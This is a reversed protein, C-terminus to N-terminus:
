GGAGAAGRGRAWVGIDLRKGGNLNFGRVRAIEQPRAAGEQALRDLFVKEEPATLFAVRCDGQRIWDAAARGDAMVLDTRTLFVLSPERYGATLAKMDRCGTREAAEHMAAALRPSIRLGQMQPLMAGLTSAMFAVATVLALLATRWALGAAYARWALVSLAAAVALGAVALWPTAGDLAHGAAPLLALGAVPILPLLLMAPRAGWRAAPALEGRVLARAALLAIAPYLPLVYHPLKTPVAEFVLWAPIVWAMVFAVVDDRRERWLTQAAIAAFPALPWATGFFALFYAGPPGWHKEQGSSVKGLMDKGVAEVFFAGKTEIAIAIFWPAVVILALVLGPLPRLAGLWRLSRARLSLAAAPLAVLMLGVPGKVLFSLALAGWFALWVGRGVAEPGRGRALWARALAGMMAVCCATLVADTKALRAEVSLLATAAFLAAGAVAVLRGGMALLAWYALLVAAVAGLLSPLRYVAIAARADPVGAAEALKVAGAQLWYVGVPKKNRAEDQFRIAVYDGSELMQKTAQAFRPEDRDMPQLSCFGPLFLALALAVLGALARAHSAAFWAFVARAGRDGEPLTADAAPAAITQRDAHPM